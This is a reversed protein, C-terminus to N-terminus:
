LIVRWTSLLYQSRMDVDTSTKLNIKLQAVAEPYRRAKILATIDIHQAILSTVFKLMLLFVCTYIIYSVSPVKLKDM